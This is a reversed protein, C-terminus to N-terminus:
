DTGDIKKVEEQFMKGKPFGWQRGVTNWKLRQSCLHSCCMTHSKLRRAKFQSGSLTVPKKCWDCLFTVDSLKWCEPGCYKKKKQQLYDAWLATHTHFSKVIFTITKRCKECKPMPMPRNHIRKAAWDTSQTPLNLKNLLQRIRERSLPPEGLITSVEIAMANLSMNPNNIRLDTLM